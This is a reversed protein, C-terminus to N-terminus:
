VADEESKIDEESEDPEESEEQENSYDILTAPQRRARGGRRTGGSTSVKVWEGEDEEEDESADRLRM